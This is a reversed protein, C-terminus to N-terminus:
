GCGTHLRRRRSASSAAFGMRSHTNTLAYRPSFPASPYAEFQAALTPNFRISAAWGQVAAVVSEAVSPLMAPACACRGAGTWLARSSTRLAFVLPWSLGALGLMCRALTYEAGAACSDDLLQPSQPRVKASDLTDAYSFGGVFVAGRFDSLKARGDAQGSM